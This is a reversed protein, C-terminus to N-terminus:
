EALQQRRRQGEIADRKLDEIGPHVYRKTMKPNTHGAFRQLNFLNWKEKTGAENLRTHRLSYWVLREGNHDPQDVKAWERLRQFRRSFGDDSWESGIANPFVRAHHGHQEKRRLLIVKAEELVPIYRDEPDKATTGTKQEHAPIMIFGDDLHLHHWRLHRLEGPRMATYRLIHLIDKMLQANEERSIKGRYAISGDCAKLLAAFETDTVVRKREREALKPAKKWPNKALLETDVAYHLVSKAAGVCHNIWCNGLQEKRLRSIFDTAHSLKLKTLELHGYWTVFRRLCRHYFDATSEKKTNEKFKLFEAAAHRVLYPSDTVILGQDKAQQREKKQGALYEDLKESAKKEGESVRCLKQMKGGAETVYWERWVRPSAKRGM